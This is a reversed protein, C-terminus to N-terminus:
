KTEVDQNDQSKKKQWEVLSEQAQQDVTKKAWEPLNNYGGTYHIQGANDIYYYDSINNALNFNFREKAVNGINEFLNQYNAARAAENANRLNENTNFINQRLQAVDGYLKAKQIAAVQNKEQATLGMTANIQDIKSNFEAVQRRQQDNYERTKIGLDGFQNNNQYNMATLNALAAAANGSANNQIARQASQQQARYQNQQYTEDLPTYTQYGGIPNFGVTPIQGIKSAFMDANSYNAPKTRNTYGLQDSIFQGLSGIAPAYRFNAAFRDFDNGFDKWSYSTTDGSPNNLDSNDDQFLHGGHAFGNNGFMGNQAADQVSYNQMMQDYPSPQPGQPIEEQPVEEQPIQEQQAQEQMAQEQAMQEAAQQEAQYEEMMRQELAAKQEDTLSAIFRKVEEQKEKLKQAEQANKLREMNEKHTDQSIPDDKREEIEESLRKSIESYTKGEYKEDILNDKLIEKDAVIRNSYVYDNYITEGQEVLNPKGDQAVSVQVGENPNEQHTGGAEVKILPDSIYDSHSNLYGGQAFKHKKPKVYGGLAAMNQLQNFTSMRASNAVTDNFLINNKAYANEQAIEANRIAENYKKIQDNIKKKNKGEFIQSGINALGGAIGGILAGWPGFSSGQMAGQGSANLNDMIGQGWNKDGLESKRDFTKFNFNNNFSSQQSMLSSADGLNFSNLKSTENSWSNVGGIEDNINDIANRTAGGGINGFLRKLPDDASNGLADLYQRENDDYMTNIAGGVIGGAFGAYKSLDFKNPNGKDNDDNGNGNDGDNTSPTGGSSFLDQYGDNEDKDMIWNFIIDDITPEYDEIDNSYGGENEKIDKYDSFTGGQMLTDFLLDNDNNQDKNIDKKM